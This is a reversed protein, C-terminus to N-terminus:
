LKPHIHLEECCCSSFNYSECSLINVAVSLVANNFNITHFLIQLSYTIQLFFAHSVTELPHFFHFSKVMFKKVGIPSAIMFARSIFLLSTTSSIAEPVPSGASEIAAMTFFPWTYAVSRDSSISLM